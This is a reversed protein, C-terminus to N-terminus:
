MYYRNRHSVAAKTYSIFLIYLLSTVYLRPDKTVKLSHAERRREQIAIQLILQISQRFFLSLVNYQSVRSYTRLNENHIYKRFLLSNM